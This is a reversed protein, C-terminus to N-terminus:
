AEASGPVLAVDDFEGHGEGDVDLAGEVAWVRLGQFPPGDHELEEAAGVGGVAEPLQGEVAVELEVAVVGGLSVTLAGLLSLDIILCLCLCLFIVLSCFVAASLTRLM